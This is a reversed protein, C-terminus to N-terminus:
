ELLFEEFSDSYLAKLLMTDANIFAGITKSTFWLVFLQRPTFTRMIEHQLEHPLNEDAPGFFTTFSM